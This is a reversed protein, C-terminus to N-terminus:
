GPNSSTPSELRGDAPLERLNAGRAEILVLAHDRRRLVRADAHPGRALHEVQARVVVEAKGLVRGHDRGRVVREVFPAVPEGGHPEDAARLLDVLLQLRREALEEARLVRDKVRRAEVRVTSQEFRKEALLVRDDGVFQVM